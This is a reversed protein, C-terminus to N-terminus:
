TRLRQLIRLMERHRFVLSRHDIGVGAAGSPASQLDSLTTGPEKKLGVVADLRARDSAVRHPNTIGNVRVSVLRGHGAASMETLIDISMVDRVTMMGTKM